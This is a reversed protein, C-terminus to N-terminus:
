SLARSAHIAAIVLAAHVEAAAGEVWDGVTALRSRAVGRHGREAEVQAIVLVEMDATQASTLITGDLSVRLIHLQRALEMLDIRAFRAAGDMGPSEEPIGLGGNVANAVTRIDTV